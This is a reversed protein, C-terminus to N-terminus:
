GAAAFLPAGSTGRPGTKLRRPHVTPFRPLRKPRIRPEQVGRLLFLMVYLNGLSRCDMRALIQARAM